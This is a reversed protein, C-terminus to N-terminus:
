GDKIEFTGEPVAVPRRRYIDLSDRRVSVRGEGHQALVERWTSIPAEVREVAEGNEITLRFADNPCVTGEPRQAPLAAEVRELRVSIARCLSLVEEVPSSKVKHTSAAGGLKAIERQVAAELEPWGREFAQELGREQVANECQGNIEKCLKLLEERTFKRAQFNSLPGQVQSINVGFLLPVVRASDVTKAIAGAEFHIWESTLNEPTLFLLGFVSSELTKDLVRMSRQGGEIDDASFFPDVRLPLTQLWDCFISALKRSSDGSWSLFVLV